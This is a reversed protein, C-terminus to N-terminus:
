AQEGTNKARLAAEIARAFQRVEYWNPVLKDFTSAACNRLTDRMELPSLDQWERSPPATHKRVLQIMRKAEYEYKMWRDGWPENSEWILENCADEGHEEACLEFALREWEEAGDWTDPQAEQAAVPASYVAMGSSFVTKGDLPEIVCNGGYYGTVRAVPQSQPAPHRYLPIPYYDTWNPIYSVEDARCFMSEKNWYAVPEPEPKALATDNIFIHETIKYCDRGLGLSRWRPTTMLREFVDIAVEKSPFSIAANADKTWGNEVTATSLWAPALPGAILEILWATREARTVLNCIGDNASTTDANIAYKAM